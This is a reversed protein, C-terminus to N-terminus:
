VGSATRTVAACVMCPVLRIRLQNVVKMLVVRGLPTNLNVPEVPLPVVRVNVQVAVEDAPLTCFPLSVM